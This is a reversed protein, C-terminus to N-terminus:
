EFDFIRNKPIQILGTQAIEEETLNRYSFKQKWIGDIFEPKLEIIRKNEIQEPKTTKEVFVIDDPLKKDDNWSPDILLIDGIFLPYEETKLNYFLNM